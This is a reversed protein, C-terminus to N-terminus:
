SLGSLLMFPHKQPSSGSPSGAIRGGHPKNSIVASWPSQSSASRSSGATINGATTASAGAALHHLQQEGAGALAETQQHLAASQAGQFVQRADEAARVSKDEEVPTLAPHWVPKPPSSM